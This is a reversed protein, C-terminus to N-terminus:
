KAYGGFAFTRGIGIAGLADLRDADQVIKGEISIMTNKNTGGKFSINQVIYEVHEITMEDVKLSVLWEKAKKAGIKEDGNNFKWDAIDHLLAAMEIIFLDGGEAEAIRKSNNVVRVIHWYDHGTEENEMLARVHAKTKNLIIKKNM